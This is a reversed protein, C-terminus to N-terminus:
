LYSLNNGMLYNLLATENAVVDIKKNRKALLEKFGIPLPIEDLKRVITFQNHEQRANSTHDM